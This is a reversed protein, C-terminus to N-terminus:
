HWWALMAIWNVHGKRFGTPMGQWEPFVGWNADIAVGIGAQCQGFGTPMWQWGPVIAGSSVGADMAVEIGQRCWGVLWDLVRIPGSM